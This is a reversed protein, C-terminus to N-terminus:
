VRIERKLQELKTVESELSAILLRLSDLAEGHAQSKAGANQIGSLPAAVLSTPMSARVALLGESLSLRAKELRAIAGQASAVLSRVTDPAVAKIQASQQIQGLAQQDYQNQAPTDCTSPLGNYM